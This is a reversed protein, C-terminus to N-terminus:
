EWPFPFAPKGEFVPGELVPDHGPKWPRSTFTAIRLIKSGEPLPDIEVKETTVMRVEAREANLSVLCYGNANTDAYTLGPNIEANWYFYSLWTSGTYARMLAAYAGGLMAQNWNEIVEGGSEYMAVSHFVSNSRTAREAGPFVPESSIGAGSFELACARRTEADCDDMLVGAYHMHHDGSCSIVNAVGQDRIFSLLERRESPYGNWADVGLCSDSLGSFPINSLDIRFPLAPFSNGWIKWRAQSAQLGAKFWAKQAAGLVTGPPSSKRANPLETGPLTDPPKGGNATRGADLVRVADIPPLPPRKGQANRPLKPPPSKYTRNDTLFLDMNRGWRLSRYITLSGLAALNDPDPDPAGNPGFGGAAYPSDSVTAPKFDHAPNPLAADGQAGTLLAPIYEFWAQNAAAKRRQAPKGSEGFYTDRSQWSDNSFEHDDWTSVFPWRARAAQLHPDSLYLKYLHRYDALTVANTAGPNVNWDTSPWEASGDPFAPVERPKGERGKLWTPKRMDADWRDGRVEYIFDGLFLVFAIQDEPKAKKDEHIMRAWAGYFAQEFSQCSAFAFNVPADQGPAPATRTRGVISLTGGALFRYYYTTDPKLGQVHLRLCHDSALGVTMGENVLLTSFDPLASVQAHLDVPQTPALNDQVRTWLVVGDPQPDGSAVGQPFGFHPTQARIPTLEAARLPLRSAAVTFYGAALGLAKL